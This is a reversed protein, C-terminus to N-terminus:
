YKRHRLADYEKKAKKIRLNHKYSNCIVDPTVNEFGAEHARKKVIRWLGQRTLRGGKSNFFLASGSEQDCSLLYRGKNIYKELAITARESICSVVNQKSRHTYRVFVGEGLVSISNMNLAILESAYMGTSWLIEIIATDRMALTSQKKACEEAIKEFEEELIIYIDKRM